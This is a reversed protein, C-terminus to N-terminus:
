KKNNRNQFNERIRVTFLHIRRYIFLLLRSFTLIYLIFGAALGLLHFLRLEGSTSVYVVIFTIAAGALWFLTDLVFSLAKKAGIIRRMLRLVDYILGAALGGCEAIFFIHFQSLTNDM